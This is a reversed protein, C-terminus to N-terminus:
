PRPVGGNTMLQLYVQLWLTSLVILYGIMILLAGRPPEHEEHETDEALEVSEEPKSIRWDNRQPGQM